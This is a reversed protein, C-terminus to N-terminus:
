WLPDVLVPPLLSVLAHGTQQLVIQFQLYPFLPNPQYQWNPWKSTLHGQAEGYSDPFHPFSPTVLEGM